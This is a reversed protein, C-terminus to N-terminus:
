KGRFHGCKKKSIGGKKGGIKRCRGWMFIYAGAGGEQLLPGLDLLLEGVELAVQPVDGRVLPLVYGLHPLLFEQMQM